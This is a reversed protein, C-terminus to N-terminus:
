LIILRGKLAGFGIRKKKKKSPLPCSNNSSGMGEEDMGCRWGHMCQKRPTNTRREKIREDMM